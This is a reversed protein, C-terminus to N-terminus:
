ISEDSFNKLVKKLLLSDIDVRVEHEGIGKPLIFKIRNNASKKDLFFKEYFVDVDEIVYTTPLNHRKLLQEVRKM